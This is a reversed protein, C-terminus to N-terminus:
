LLKKEEEICGSCDPKLRPDNARVWSHGKPWERPLKTSFGCLPFGQHLVHIGEPVGRVTRISPELRSEIAITSNCHCNRMEVVFTGEADESVQSGIFPLLAWEVKTFHRGCGCSKFIKTM